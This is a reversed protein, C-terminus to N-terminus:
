RAPWRQQLWRLAEARYRVQYTHPVLTMITLKSDAQDKVSVRWYEIGQMISVLPDIDGFQMLQPSQEGALRYYPSAARRDERSMGLESWYRQSAFYGDLSFWTLLNMPGGAVVAGDVAGKSALAAALTGGSSVGYAVVPGRLKANEAHREVTEIEGLVNGTPNEKRYPVVVVRYGAARLDDAIPQVTSPDGGNFGGRAAPPDHGRVRAEGRCTKGAPRERRARRAVNPRM